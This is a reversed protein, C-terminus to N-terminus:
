NNRLKSLALTHFFLIEYLIIYVEASNLSQDVLQNELKANVNKQIVSLVNADIHNTLEIILEPSWEQIQSEYKLSAETKVYNILEQTVNSAGKAIAEM